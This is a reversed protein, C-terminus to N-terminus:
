SFIHDSSFSLGDLAEKVDSYNYGLGVLYRMLKLKDQYKKQGMKMEITKKLSEQDNIQGNELSTKIVEESIKKKRLENTLKRKSAPKFLLKDHIFAQTYYQDNILGLEVLRSVIDQIQSPSAKKRKLYDRIEGESRLRLNIYKLAMDYFKNKNLEKNIREVDNENLDMGVHINQDLILQGSLILKLFDDDVFVAFMDDKGMKAIKTVKM